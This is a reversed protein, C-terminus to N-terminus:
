IVTIPLTRLTVDHEGSRYELAYDGTQAPARVFVMNELGPKGSASTESLVNGTGPDIIRLMDGPRAPGRWRVEAERGARMQEPVSLVIPFAAVELARSARLQGSPSVYRLQYSGPETPANVGVMAQKVPVSALRVGKGGQAIPGWLEVHGEIRRDFISVPVVQGPDVTKPAQIQPQTAAQGSLKVMEAHPTQAGALATTSTLLLVSVVSLRFTATRMM